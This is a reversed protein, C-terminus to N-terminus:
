EDKLENLHAVETPINLTFLAGGLPANELRITGGHAEVFGRAISLGLGTGGPRASKLRYFKDFVFAIENDPFGAGNDEVTIVCGHHENSIAKITIISAAPTYTVANLILNHLVQEMLGGDLRFLPLDEPVLVDIAHHSLAENMRNITTYVLENLSCWDKKLQIFGSELRSMDLLNKVQENLRLSAVSIEALLSRKNKESLLGNTTLLSDTAGIITSIPTRLEHSLSNLLTNYLKLTVVREEKEHAVKQIRKIKHMLVAHVLAIVFYMTFLFVDEANDIHFTYRPPIFFYNWILASLVASLIVPIM